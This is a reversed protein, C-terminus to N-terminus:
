KEYHFHKNHNHDYVEVTKGNKIAELHPKLRYNKFKSNDPDTRKEIFGKKDLEQMRAGAKYGV